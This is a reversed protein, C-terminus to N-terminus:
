KCIGKGSLMSDLTIKFSLNSQMMGKRLSEQICKFHLIFHKNLGVLSQLRVERKRMPESKLISWMSQSAVNHGFWIETKTTAAAPPPPPKTKNGRAPFEYSNGALRAIFSSCTFDSFSIPQRSQKSTTQHKNLRIVLVRCTYKRGSKLNQEVSPIKRKM